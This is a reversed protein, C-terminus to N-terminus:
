CFLMRYLLCQRLFFSSVIDHVGDKGEDESDNEDGEEEYGIKKSPCICKWGVCCVCVLGFLSSFGITLGITAPTWWCPAFFACNQFVVDESSGGCVPSSMPDIKECMVDYYGTCQITRFELGPTIRSCLQSGMGDPEGSAWTAWGLTHTGSCSATTWYHTYTGNNNIWFLGM